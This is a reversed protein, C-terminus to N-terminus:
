FTCVSVKGASKKVSEEIAKVVAVPEIMEDESFIWRNNDLMEKIRIMGNRYCNKYDVKSSFYSKKTLGELSFVYPMEPAIKITGILKEHVITAVINKSRVTAYVERVGTGAAENFIETCHIGYFILGGYESELDGPGLVNLFVPEESKFVKKLEQVAETFRLTSFSTFLVQKEAALEILRKADAVTAALPKDVFVPIGSEIFPKAYELHLGGHRFVVFAIDINGIMENVDSVIKEVGGKEAVERNRAEDLGFLHTAKFGPVYNEGDIGNAIQSFTIAHSNDSGVIGIRYVM